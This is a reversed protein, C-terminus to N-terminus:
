IIHSSWKKRDQAYYAARYGGIRLSEGDGHSAVHHHSGGIRTHHQGGIVPSIQETIRFADESSGVEGYAIEFAGKAIASLAGLAAAGVGVREAGGRAVAVQQFLSAEIIHAHGVVMGVVESLLADQRCFSNEPFLTDEERADCAPCLTSDNLPLPQLDSEAGESMVAIGQLMGIEISDSTDDVIQNLTAVDHDYGEMTTSLAACLAVQWLAALGEETLVATGQALQSMEAYVVTGVDDIAVARM